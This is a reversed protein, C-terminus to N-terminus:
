PDSKRGVPFQWRVLRSYLIQTALLSLCVEIPNKHKMGDRSIAAFWSCYRTCNILIYFVKDSVSAHFRVLTFTKRHQKM